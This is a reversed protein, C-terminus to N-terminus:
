PSHSASTLFHTRWAKDLLKMSKKFMTTRLLGHGLPGRIKQSGANSLGEISRQTRRIYTRQLLQAQPLPILRKCGKPYCRSWETTVQTDHPSIRQPPAMALVLQSLELVALSLCFDL